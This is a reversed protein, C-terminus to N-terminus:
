KNKKKISAEEPEQPTRKDGDEYLVPQGITVHSVQRIETSAPSASSAQGLDAQVARNTTLLEVEPILVPTLKRKATETTLDGGSNLSPLLIENTEATSTAPYPEVPRQLRRTAPASQNPASKSEQGSDGSAQPTLVYAKVTVMAALSILALCFVLILRHSPSWAYMNM